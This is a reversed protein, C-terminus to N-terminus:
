RSSKKLSTKTVRSPPAVHLEDSERGTPTNVSPMVHTEVEIHESSADPVRKTVASAPVVHLALFRGVFAETPSRM